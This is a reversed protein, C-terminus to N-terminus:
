PLRKFPHIRWLTSYLADVPKNRGTHEKHSCHLRQQDFFYGFAFGPAACVTPLVCSVASFFFCACLGRHQSFYFHFHLSYFFLSPVHREEEEQSRVVRLVDECVFRFVRRCGACVLCRRSHLAKCIFTSQSCQLPLVPASSGSSHVIVPQTTIYLLHINFMCSMSYSNM